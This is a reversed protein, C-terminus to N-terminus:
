NRSFKTCYNFIMRLDIPIKLKHLSYIFVAVNLTGSESRIILFVSYKSIPGISHRRVDDYVLTVCKKFYDM